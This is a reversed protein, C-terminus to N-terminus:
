HHIQYGGLDRCLDRSPRGSSRARGMRPLHRFVRKRHPRVDRLLGVVRCPKGDDDFILRANTSCHKVSGDKCRATVEYERVVGKETLAALFPARQEPIAWFDVISTGIIEERTYGAHRQVSPSVQLITADPGVEYYVDEINEFIRRYMEESTKLAEEAKRRDTIDHVISYLLHRGQVDILCTHVEVDRLQGTATRHKSLFRRSRESRITAIEELLQERTMTSIDDIKLRKLQDISYGYFDCAAPNADVIWREVPDILVKIARNREFMQRYREESDRLAEEALRRETTDEIIGVGGIISGDKAFIPASDCKLATTRNGTAPTFYGEFHGITGSLAKGIADLVKEDKLETLLNMGMVKERSSDNMRVFNDNCATVTGSDDFHVLGVPSNEFILRYKEESLRLAERARKQETVDRCISQYRLAGGAAFGVTTTILCDIIQGDARLARWECDQVYATAQLMAAWESMLGADAWLEEFNTQMIEETRYGFMDLFSRNVMQFTGDSSTVFIADRSQEFLVRFKEEARTLRENTRNLEKQMLDGINMLRLSHSLLRKYRDLLHIYHSPWSIDGPTVSAILEEGKRLTEEEEHFLSPENM